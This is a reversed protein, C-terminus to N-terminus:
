TNSPAMGHVCVWQEYYVSSILAHISSCCWVFGERVGLARARDHVALALQLLQDPGAIAPEVGAAETLISISPCQKQKGLRLRPAPSADSAGRRVHPCGVFGRVCVRGCAWLRVDLQVPMLMM